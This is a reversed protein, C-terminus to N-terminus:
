NGLSLEISNIDSVLDAGPIPPVLNMKVAYGGVLIKPHPPGPLAAIREILRVVAPFQESLAISILVVSPRSECILSIPDDIAPTPGIGRASMGKDAFWAALICIAMTHRNGPANMLLVDARDAAAPVTPRSVTVENSLQEFLQECYSTFRHEEAVTIYGKQWEEGIRYLLPAILGMFIDISRVNQAIAERLAHDVTRLDGSLGATMLRDQMTQLRRSNEFDGDTLTRVNQRCAACIGHTISLDEYPEAEGLFKQCYSCWRLM